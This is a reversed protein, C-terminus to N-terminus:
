LFKYVDPLGTEYVYYRYNHQGIDSVHLSAGPGPAGMFIWALFKSEDEEGEGGFESVQKPVFYPESFYKELEHRIVDDGTSRSHLSVFQSSWIHLKLIIYTSVPIVATLGSVLWLVFWQTNFQYGLKM